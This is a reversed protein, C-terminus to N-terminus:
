QGQKEEETGPHIAFWGTLMSRLENLPGSLLIMLLHVVLFAALLAAGIFHLSRASQRGGLLDTLWPLAANMMPSMALGTMVMAPLVGFIVGLYSLKQIVNYHRAEEGKPFRMRVHDRFTRGIGRLEPRSPLLATNLRGSMRNYAGYVIANIALVWAFFFHWQRGAGLDKGAPVTLVSPFARDVLTGSEDEVAGLFGTSNLRLSGVRVDGRVAGDEVTMAIEFFGQGFRSVEGWYLAPHANFIQMGSGLLVVIALANIWHTLRVPLPHRYILRSKSGDPRSKRKQM